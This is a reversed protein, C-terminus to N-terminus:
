AGLSAGTGDVVQQSLDHLRTNSSRSRERLIEFAEQPSIDRRAAVIGKAQEIVVRSELAGRLQAVVDRSEQLEEQHLIYGSAMNALVQAIELEHDTWAHARRQYLNLAGIRREWAPMPVGAVARCGQDLAIARYGSWRTEQALDAVAVVSGSRFADHCPGDAGAEHRAEITAVVADTAAVFDLTDDENLYVGAGDVGLVAVAQDTLQYLVDGIRYSGVLLKSYGTLASVLADHDVM